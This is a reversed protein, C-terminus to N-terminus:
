AAEKRKKNKLYQIQKQLKDIQQELKEEQQELIITENTKIRGPFDYKRHESLIKSVERYSSQAHELDSKLNKLKLKKM